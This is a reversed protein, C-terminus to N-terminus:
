VKYQNWEVESGSGYILRGDHKDASYPEWWGDVREWADYAEGYAEQDDWEEAEGPNDVGYSSAYDCAREQVLTDLEQESMDAPVEWATYETAGVCVFTGIVIRKTEM